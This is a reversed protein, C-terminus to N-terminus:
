QRLPPDDERGSRRDAGARGHRARVDRRGRRDRRGPDGAPGGRPDDHLLADDGPAHRDGARGRSRSGSCRCSAAARASCTASACPSSRRAGDGSAGGDAVIWRPWRTQDRGHRHDPQGGQGDLDLRLARRRVDGARRRRARHRTVNNRIAEVPNAEMMPVHKYAAAHFVVDPPARRVRACSSATRSTRSSQLRRRSAVSACCSRSSRSCRLSPTISSCSGSPGLRSVQRCLEAGISGGAGTVM